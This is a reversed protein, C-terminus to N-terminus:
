TARHIADRVSSLATRAAAPADARGVVEALWTELQKAEYLGLEIVRADGIDPKESPLLEAVRLLARVYRNLGQGAPFPEYTVLQQWDRDTLRFTVNSAM